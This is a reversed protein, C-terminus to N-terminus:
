NKVKKFLLIIHALKIGVDLSILGIIPSGLGSLLVIFLNDINDVTNLEYTSFTTYTGLFGTILLLFLEPYATYKKALITTFLGMFFCGSINIFFIDIPFTTALKQGCFISIFYRSLVGAIAGLSIIIPTRFNPNKFMKKQNCKGTKNKNKELGFCFFLM